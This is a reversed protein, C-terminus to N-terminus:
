EAAVSTPARFPRVNAPQAEPEAPGPGFAMTNVTNEREVLGAMEYYKRFWHMTQALAEPEMKDLGKVMNFAKRHLHNDEIANAIQQGLAGTLETVSAQTSRASRLLANLKNQTISEGYRADVQEQTPQAPTTPETRATSRRARPM